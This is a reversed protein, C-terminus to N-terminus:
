RVSDEKKMVEILFKIDESNVPESLEQQETYKKAAEFEAYDRNAVESEVEVSNIGDEDTGIEIDDVEKDEYHVGGSLGVLEPM